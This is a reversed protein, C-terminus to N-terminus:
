TRKGLLQKIASLRARAVEVPTVAVADPIQLGLVKAVNSVYPKRGGALKRVAAAIVPDGVQQRLWTM